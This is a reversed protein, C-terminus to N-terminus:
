QKKNVMTISMLGPISVSITIDTNETEPSKALNHRARKIASIAPLMAADVVTDKVAGTTDTITKAAGGLFGFGGSSSVSESAFARCCGAAVVRRECGRLVRFM